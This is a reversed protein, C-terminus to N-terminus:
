VPLVFLFLLFLGSEVWGSMAFADLDGVVIAPRMDRIAPAQGHSPGSSCIFFLFCEIVFGGGVRFRDLDLGCFGWSSKGEREELTLEVVM